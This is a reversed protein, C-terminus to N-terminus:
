DSQVPAYFSLGRANEDVELASQLPPFARQECDMRECIRCATGVPVATQLNELDMGDAYVIEKAYQIECGMGIAHLARSGLYGGGDKRVTKAVCFYTSGDTMREVQVRDNGPTLFASHVNWRPCAGSFRPFRIGSGSFRKSINGAIDVRVFHWPVGEAGPRRLTTLRHCVQEYSTRFRHGLLEIDYRTTRAAELVADYPMLVAGAFYNAMVVRALKRSSESTLQRDNAVQDMADSQTLLGIQHAVQFHRSRPPLLESLTLQRRQPDFRRVAGQNAGLPVVNVAIGHTQSLYRVMSPYRDTTELRCDRRVKAAGEELGPFHNNHRRVLDNVEEPPPYSREHSASRRSRGKGESAPDASNLLQLAMNEASEHSDKYGRYLTLLANAMSPHAGVLERVDASNLEHEDFIPDSLAELLDAVMRADEDAGLEKLDLQFKTVLKILLDSPLPRRGHEILNLYSGSIGLLEALQKQTMGQRRRIVRVKAGLHAGKSM